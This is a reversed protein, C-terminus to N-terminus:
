LMPILHKSVLEMILPQAKAKPHIGDPQLLTLDKAVPELLFPILEVQKIQALDSYIQEFRTTYTRGYNPPIKIGALLVKASHKLSLNVMQTLNERTATLSLGRLGDNGGLEIIVIDPKYLELQRQIRELGGHTTEGSISANIMKVPKNQQNLFDQLLSVWGQEIKINYAASLSDGFVLVTKQKHDSTPETMAQPSNFVLSSSILCILGYIYIKM